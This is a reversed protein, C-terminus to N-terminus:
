TIPDLRIWTMLQPRGESCLIWRDLDNWGKLEPFISLDRNGMKIFKANHTKKSNLILTDLKEKSNTFFFDHLEIFIISKSFSEYFELDFLDFEAGEIDVFLVSNILDLKPIENALNRTAEGRVIVKDSVNNLAANKAIVDRGAETIEYCYSKKFLNSVLVGVGYYGDAAGLDIFTTFHKSINSFENLVEQEYLGLIMTGRDSVGWHSDESFKLGRFLGYQVTNNHYKSIIDSLSLRHKNLLFSRVKPHLDWAHSVMNLITQQYDNM